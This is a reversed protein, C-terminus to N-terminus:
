KDDYFQARAKLLQMLHELEGFRHLELNEEITLEGIKSRELLERVRAQAGESPRCAIVEASTAGRAFFDAIEEYIKDM